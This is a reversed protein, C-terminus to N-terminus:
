INGVRFNFFVSFGHPTILFKMGSIFADGITELMLFLAVVGLLQPFMQTIVLTTLGVRRGKFRYRSFAYAAMASLLLTALSTVVGVVVTNLLWKGFPRQPDSFLKRYNDLTFSSFLRNSGTLSGGRRLSTSLVYLLPFVAVVVMVLGVAHRWGVLKMWRAWGITRPGEYRTATM